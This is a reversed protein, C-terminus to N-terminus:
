HEQQASMVRSGLDRDANLDPGRRRGPMIDSRDTGTRLKDPHFAIPIGDVATVEPMAAIPSTRGIGSRMPDARAMFIPAEVAAIPVTGMTTELVVMVPVVVVVSIVIAPVVLRAPEERM